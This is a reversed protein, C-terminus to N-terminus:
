TDIWPGGKTYDELELYQEIVLSQTLEENDSLERQLQGVQSKM